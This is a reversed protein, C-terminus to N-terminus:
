NVYLIIYYYKIISSRIIFKGYSSISFAIQLLSAPSPSPAQKDKVQNNHLAISTILTLENSVFIAHLLSLIYLCAERLVSAM